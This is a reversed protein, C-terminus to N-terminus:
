AEDAKDDKEDHDDEARKRKSGALQKEEEEKDENEQSRGEAVDEDDSDEDVDEKDDGDELGQIKAAIRAQERRISDILLQKMSPTKALDLSSQGTSTKVAPDLRADLLVKVVSENGKSVALHLATKSGKSTRQHLLRRAKRVILDVCRAAETSSSQVAFHLVTFGDMAEKDMNAKARVLAQLIDFQGAWAALHLPTRSHKDTTNVDGGTAIFTQVEALNGNRVYDHISTM